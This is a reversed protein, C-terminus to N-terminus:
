DPTESLKAQLRQPAHHVMILTTAIAIGAVRLIAHINPFAGLGLIQGLDLVFFLFLILIVNLMLRWRQGRYPLRHYIGIYGILGLLPPIILLIFARQLADLPLPWQYAMSTQGASVNLGIPMYFLIIYLLGVAYLGYFVGLPIWLRNRGLLLYAFFHSLAFFALCGLLIHLILFTAHLAFDPRWIHDLIEITGRSALITGAATWWITFAISSQQIDPSPRQLFTNAGIWILLTGLGVGLTGLLIAFLHDSRGGEWTKRHFLPTTPTDL